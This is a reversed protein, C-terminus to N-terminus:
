RISAARCMESYDAGVTEIVVRDVTVFQDWTIKRQDLPTKKEDEPAYIAWLEKIADEIEGPITRQDVKQEQYIPMRGDAPFDVALANKYGLRFTPIGAARTRPTKNDDVKVSSPVLLARVVSNGEGNLYPFPILRSVNSRLVPDEMAELMPKLDPVEELYQVLVIQVESELAVRLEEL